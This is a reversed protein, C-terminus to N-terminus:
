SIPPSRSHNLNSVHELYSNTVSIHYFYNNKSLIDSTDSHAKSKEDEADEICCAFLLSSDEYNNELIINNYSDFSVASSALLLQLILVIPVMSNCFSRIKHFDFNQM